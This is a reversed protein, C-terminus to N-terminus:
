WDDSGQAQCGYYPGRFKEDVQWAHGDSSLWRGRARAHTVKYVKPGQELGYPGATVVARDSGFVAPPSLPCFGAPVVLKGPMIGLSRRADIGLRKAVVVRLDRPLM